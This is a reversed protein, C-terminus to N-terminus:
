RVSATEVTAMLAVGDVSLIEPEPLSNPYESVGGGPKTAWVWASIKSCDAGALLEVSIDSVGEKLPAEIFRWREVPALSSAAFAINRYKESEAWSEITFRASTRSEKGNIRVTCVPSAPATKDGEMLLLLKAQPSKVTVQADLKLEFASKGEQQGAVRKLESKSVTSAIQGGVKDSVQPLDSLRQRRAVSLVVTEYPALPVNLADGFNLGKGYVRPEPYLSVASLGKAGSRVGLSEDLKLALKQPIAWPNRAMIIGKGNKWHAYGYPDRPMPAAYDFRPVKGGQWSAPLIPQTERLISQNKRAWTLLGALMRWQADDMYRPNMYLPLFMHGRLVTVVADNMFPDTNQHNVGMVEQAAIPYELLAAGQLNWFDRATTYSEQYTPCPARGYPMDDGYMGIVSTCYFAWWPSGHPAFCTPELWVDPSAKLVANMVGIFGDAVAEASLDGPEHGHDASPCTYRYGDLKIHRVGTNKVLDVLVEKFRTQYHKGALCAYKDTVTADNWHPVDFTEYDKLGPWKPDLIGYGYCPSVWIGPSMGMKQATEKFKAFGNPFYTKNIEWVGGIAAWGMDIIFSDFKVGYPKFLHKDFENMLRLSEPETAALGAPGETSWWCNYAVRLDNPRPRNAEVYNLFARKEADVPAVGYVAKRTEYWVGPKMRLGPKHSLVITSGEVRTSAVPYEVGVFYGKLFAPYSQFQDPIINGKYSAADLKDLLIETVVPAAKPETTKYAAWKRLVSEKPFWQLFLKVDLNGIGEVVVPPYAIEVPKGTKLDGSASSPATDGAAVNGAFVFQPCKLSVQLEVGANNMALIDPRMEFTVTPKGAASVCIAMMLGGFALLRISHIRHKPVRPFQSRHYRIVHDRLVTGAPYVSAIAARIM